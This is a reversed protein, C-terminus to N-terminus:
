CLSPLRSEVEFQIAVSLSIWLGQHGGGSDDARGSGQMMMVLSQFPLNSEILPMIIPTTIYYPLNAVVVLDPSIKCGPCIRALSIWLCSIKTFWKSM